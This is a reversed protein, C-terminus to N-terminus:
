GTSAKGGKGKLNGGGGPAFSGGPGPTGPSPGPAAPATAAGPAKNDIPAGAPPPGPPADVSEDKNNSCGILTLPLLALLVLGAVTKKRIM